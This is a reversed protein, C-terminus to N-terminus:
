YVKTTKSINMAKKRGEKTGGLLVEQFCALQQYNQDDNPYWRSDEKPFQDQAYAQAESYECLRSRGDMESADLNYPM